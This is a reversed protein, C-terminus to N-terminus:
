SGLVQKLILVADRSDVVNSADLDLVAREPILRVSMQLACLADHENLLGDGNCDGTVLGADDEAVLEGDIRQVTVAEGDADSATTVTVTLESRTGAAGTIRFPIWAVTGSGAVEPDGAFGVLVTGSQATTASFTAGTLLNGVAVEGEPTAVAPDYALEFIVNAVDRADVLWVPVWVLEGPTGQRQGAQLTLTSVPAPEPNPFVGPPTAGTGSQARSFTYERTETSITGNANTARVTIVHEGATIDSVRADRSWEPIDIPAGDLTWTYRTIAESGAGTVETLCSIEARADVATPNCALSLTVTTQAIPPTTPTSTAPRTPTPTMRVTAFTSTAAPAAATPTSAAPEGECPPRKKLEEDAQNIVQRIPSDLPPEVGEELGDVGAVVYCGRMYAISHLYTTITGEADPGTYPMFEIGTEGAETYPRLKSPDQSTAFAELLADSGARDAMLFVFVYGYEGEITKACYWLFQESTVTGDTFGSQEQWDAFDNSSIVQDELGPTTPTLSCLDYPDDPEQAWTSATLAYLMGAALLVTALFGRICPIRSFWGM